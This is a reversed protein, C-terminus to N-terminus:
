ILVANRYTRPNAAGRYATKHGAHPAQVKHANFFQRLIKAQFQPLLRRCCFTFAPSGHTNESCGISAPALSFLGGLPINFQAVMVSNDPSQRAKGALAHGGLQALVHLAQNVALCVVFQRAAIKRLPQFRQRVSGGLNEGAPAQQRGM